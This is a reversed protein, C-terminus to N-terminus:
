KKSKKKKDQKPTKTSKRPNGKKDVKGTVKLLWLKKAAKQKKEKAKRLEPDANVKCREIYLKKQVKTEVKHAPNLRPRSSNKQPKRRSAKIKHRIM